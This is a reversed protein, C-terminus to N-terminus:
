CALGEFFLFGEMGEDLIETGADPAREYPLRYVSTAHKNNNSPSYHSSSWVNENNAM